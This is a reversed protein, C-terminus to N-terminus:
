GAGGATRRIVMITLDDDRGPRAQFAALDSLCAAIMGAPELHRAAALSASLREEGFLEDAGNRSETVGDSYLLLSDGPELRTEHPTYDGADLVGVPLGGSEIQSVVGGRMVLPPCHGANCCEVQGDAGLRACVLTAFHSGDAGQAFFRNASSLLEPLPPDQPVLSRLMGNLQAMLFAAAVGKGSVDGLAAFISGNRRILDCYDGSVMGAPVYRHHVEWGNAYFPQEPLLALQLRRAMALDRELARQQQENLECLCYETMPHALLEDDGVPTGCCRCMGASPGGLREIADDVARLLDVLDDARGVQGLVGNLRERRSLLQSRLSSKLAVDM